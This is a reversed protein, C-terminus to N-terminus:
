KSFIHAWKRNQNYEKTLWDFQQLSFSVDNGRHDKYGSHWNGYPDDIIISKIKNLEIQESAEVMELDNQETSFGVVTVIHGFNTFRGNVNVACKNIGVTYLIEEMTADLKFTDVKRM